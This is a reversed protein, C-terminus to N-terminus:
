DTQSRDPPSSPPSGKTAGLLNTLVEREGDQPTLKAEGLGNDDDNLPM